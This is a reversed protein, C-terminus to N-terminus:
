MDVQLRTFLANCWSIRHGIRAKQYFDVLAYGHDGLFALIETFSSQGSYMKSFNVELLINKVKKAEIADKAGKLVELDFGQTDIKLLDISELGICKLVNDLQEVKVAETGIKRESGHDYEPDINLFSNWCSDEFLNFTKEGKEAGLALPHITVNLMQEDFKGRLVKLNSLAPEFAHIIPNPFITQLEVITEGWHAGVDFCVPNVCGVVLKLDDPYHCGTVPYSHYCVTRNFSKFIKKTIRKM